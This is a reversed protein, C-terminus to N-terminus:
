SPIQKKSNSFNIKKLKEAIEEAKVYLSGETISKTNMHAIGRRIEKCIENCIQEVM